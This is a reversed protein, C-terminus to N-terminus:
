DGAYLAVGGNEFTVLVRRRQQSEDIQIDVAAGSVLSPGFIEAGYHWAQGGTLRTLGGAAGGIWLSGDLPDVALARVSPDVMAEPAMRATGGDQARRLLGNHSSGVWLAGDLGVALDSVHDDTRGSPRSEDAVADPWWDIQNQSLLAQSECTWFDVRGDAGAPCRQSRFWGGVWLDGSAELALGRYGGTLASLSTSGEKLYGNLLPHAHELVGSCAPAAGCNQVPEFDPDGWAYGHNGGFWLSRTRADFLIRYIDCVKERGRPEAPVVLAGSAIDYHAVEIRLADPGDSVLRVRDADGSKYISADPAPGDWNDECGLAGAESRGRYGVFVTNAEGGTVAIVDLYVPFDVGAQAASEAYPTLGDELGLRAFENQNPRLVFLGAEGGAVWVNGSADATAGHLWSPLGAEAGWITWSATETVRRVEFDPAEHPVGPWAGSSVEEGADRPESEAAGSEPTANGGGDAWDEWILASNQDDQDSRACGVWVVLLGFVAGWLAARRVFERLIGVEGKGRGFIRKM